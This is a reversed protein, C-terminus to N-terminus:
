REKARKLKCPKMVEQLRPLGHFDYRQLFRALRRVRDGVTVSRNAQEGVKPLSELPDRVLSQHM